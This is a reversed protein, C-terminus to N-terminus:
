VSFLFRFEFFSVCAKLDFLSGVPEVVTVTENYAVVRHVGGAADKLNAWITLGLEQPRFRLVVCRSPILYLM